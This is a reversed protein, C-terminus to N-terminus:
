KVPFKFYQMTRAPYAYANCGRYVEWPLGTTNKVEVRALNDTLDCDQGNASTLCSPVQIKVSSGTAVTKGSYYLTDDPNDELVKVRVTYGKLSPSSSTATVNYATVVGNKKVKSVSITPAPPKAKKQLLDDGLTFDYYYITSGSSVLLKWDGVIQRPYGLWVSYETLRLGSPEIYHAPTCIHSEGTTLNSFEVKDITVSAATTENLELELKVGGEANSINGFDKYNYHRSDLYTAFYSVFGNDAVDWGPMECLPIEEAALLPATLFLLCICLPLIRRKM